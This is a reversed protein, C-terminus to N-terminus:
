AVKYKKTISNWTINDNNEGTVNLVVNTGSVAFTADLPAIDESTFSSQVVGITVVGAVNKAKVTRIYGNGQGVTGVGAGSTKRCTIYSEIMVVTDTPIAITELAVTANTTTNITNGGTDETVNTIPELRLNANTTANLGKIHAKALPNSIGYGFSQSSRKYIFDINGTYDPSITFDGSTAELVFGFGNASGSVNFRGFTLKDNFISSIGLTSVADPTLFITGKNVSNYSWKQISLNSDFVELKATPAIINVGVNGDGNVTFITNGNQDHARIATGTTGSGNTIKAFLGIGTSTEGKVGYGSPDIANVAISGSSQIYAGQFGGGTIELRAVGITNQNISVLANNTVYLLPQGFFDNAKFAYNAITNDIGNITLRSTPDVNVAIGVNSEFKATTNTFLTLTKTQALGNGNWFITDNNVTYVNLTQTSDELYIQSRAIAANNTRFYLKADQNSSTNLNLGITGSGIAQIDLAVSAVSGLGILGYSTLIDFTNAGLATILTPQILAGGLQVTTGSVSLGNDAGTLTGGGGGGSGAHFGDAGGFGM